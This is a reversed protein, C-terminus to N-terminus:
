PQAPKAMGAIPPLEAAPPLKTAAPATSRSRLAVHAMGRRARLVRLLKRGLEVCAFLLGIVPAWRALEPIGSIRVITPRAFAIILLFGAVVATRVILGYQERRLFHAMLAQEACHASLSRFGDNEERMKGFDVPRRVFNVRRPRFQELTDEVIPAEVETEVKVRKPPLPEEGEFHLRGSMYEEIFSIMSRHKKKESELAPERAAAKLAATSQAARDRSKQAQKSLLQEVYSDIDIAESGPPKEATQVASTLQTRATEVAETQIRHLDQSTNAANNDPTSCSDASNDEEFKVTTRQIDTDTPKEQETSEVDQEESLPLKLELAPGTQPPEKNESEDDDDDNSAATSSDIGEAATDSASANKLESNLREIINDVEEAAMPTFLKSPPVDATEQAEDFSSVAPTTDTEFATTSEPETDPNSVVAAAAEAQPGTLLSQPAHGSLSDDHAPTPNSEVVTMPVSLDAAADEDPRGSEPTERHQSLRHIELDTMASQLADEYNLIQQHSEAARQRLNIVDQQLSVVQNRLLRNEAALERQSHNSATLNAESESQAHLQARLQKLEAEASQLESLLQSHQQRSQVLEDQMAVFEAERVALSDTASQLASRDIEYQNRLEELNELLESCRREETLLISERRALENQLQQLEQMRQVSAALAEDQRRALTNAFATEFRVKTDGVFSIDQETLPVRSPAEIQPPPAVAEGVILSVAGVTIVDEIHLQMDSQVPMDNVWVHGNCRHIRLVGGINEFRCHEEHLGTKKLVIHNEDGSGCRYESGDLINWPGIGELYQPRLQPCMPVQGPQIKKALRVSM